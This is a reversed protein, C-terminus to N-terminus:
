RQIRGAVIQGSSTLALSYATDSPGGFSSLVTGSSGFTADLNGNFDFRQLLFDSGNGGAVIVHNNGQIVLAYYAFNEGAPTTVTGGTGFSTDVSGDPNLLELVGQSSGSVGEHGALMLQGDPLTVVAEAVFSATVPQGGNFSTDSPDGPAAINVTFTATTVAASNGSPDKVQGANVAVTYTGNDLNSWGGLPAAVTYIVTLTPADGNPTASFDTVDLPGQPGSVSINAIGLTSASVNSNPDAYTVNITQPDTGAATINPTSITAVPPSTDPVTANVSFGGSSTAIGNGAIDKVSGAVVAVTYGGNDSANWPQGGPSGVTYTAIIGGATTTTHVSMVTLAGGPGSVTINGSGITKPDVGTGSDTYTVVVTESTGGPSTIDSASISAIPPTTDLIGANVNFKATSGAIGNGAVDTVHGAVVSVTYNGNASPCAAGGPAAFTYVASVTPGNVSPLKSLTVLSLPGDPGTVTVSGSDITSADVGSGSDSYTVTVIENSGGPGTVNAATITATPPSTDPPAINVSFNQSGAAVNNGSTDTVTGAALTIAYNGDDTSSWAKGGPATVVYTATISAADSGPSTSVSQVTLPGAPGTVTIDSKSITSQKVAVNDSYTVTIDETTGGSSTISPASIVATPQTTDPVAIKVAFNQSGASIGNGSTDTVSGQAMAITYNGDDAASWPKGGPATITYTATISAANAGPPSVSQVTLPGSPGTVTIDSKTITSAKVATDDTYLVTVTETAGGASSISPASISAVPATTDPVPINVNFTAATGTANNGSTDQVPNSGLAVTYKGDDANVWGGPPAAISYTATIQQANGTPPNSSVLSAPLNGAPGTVALNGAGLSLGNVNVDDNYVVTVTAPNNSAAAIDPPATIAATPANTDAIAVQFTASAPGLPQGATDTPSNDALTVNYTGDEAITWGSRAPPPSAVSYVATVDTSEPGSSGFTM